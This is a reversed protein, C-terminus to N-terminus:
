RSFPSTGPSMASPGATACRAIRGTLKAALTALLDATRLRQADIAAWLEDDNM